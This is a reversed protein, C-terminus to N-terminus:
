IKIDLVKQVLPAYNHETLTILNPVSFMIIEPENLLLEQKKYYSLTKNKLNQFETFDRCVNIMMSELNGSIMFVQPFEALVQKIGKGRKDMPIKPNHRFHSVTLIEFGLKKLNPVRLTKLIGDSEFSKKLKSVVQRTVGISEAIKSDPIDPYKILGFLVRKEVNSLKTIDTKPIEAPEFDKDEGKINVGFAYRIIPAFDFFNHISSYEFPFFFYSPNGDEIFNNERYVREMKEISRHLETYNKGIGLYFGVNTEMSSYVIEPCQNELQDKHVKFLDKDTKLPNFNMFSTMLLECGLNQLVPIRVTFYYRNKRLRNKIATVTTMKLRIKNSLERDNFLPYKILGYLVLKENKNLKGHIMIDLKPFLIEIYITQPNKVLKIYFNIFYEYLFV